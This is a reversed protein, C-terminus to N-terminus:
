GCRAPKQRHTVLSGKVLDKGCEPCSVQERQQEKFSRGEGTMRRTYAKDAWLGATRCPRFVMGATKHVNTRLVVRDFLGTM